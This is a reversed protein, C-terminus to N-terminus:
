HRPWDPGSLRHGTGSSTLLDTVLRTLRVAHDFGLVTSTGHHIDDRLAAYVGGVNAAADALHALEGEDVSQGAGDLSLTLRGSQLGRMAHGGLGLVGAEGVVELRFPTEPPRGGAVEVSLAAGGALRGHLLLHDFTTRPRPEGEDGAKIEPFQTTALASLDVLGGAVALALDITHAGQITVLNAFNGPEELYLFPAAVDPGFGATASFATVSLPRGITGSGILERARRVCPNARLQLGIAAHVGAERAAAAMVEAEAVSRGLPWECYVHKGAELAALVLDRHDPVRTCITVLDIGPARALELGSAYATPM